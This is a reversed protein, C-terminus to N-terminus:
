LSKATTDMANWTVSSLAQITNIGDQETSNQNTLVAITYDVGEGHVHGISNINWGQNYDLWGNKLQVSVNSPIGGTVGWRQDSEVNNLLADATAVSDESLMTHYAIQNVVKLQDLADTQTLGWEDDTGAVTNTTGIQQFFSNMTTEGGVTDWLDSAADDDSSEIMPVAESMQDSTLGSINNHQNQLLLVELMSLKVISATNYTTGAPANTYETTSGTTKDHVAIDVNGDAPNAALYQRWASVLQVGLEKGDEGREARAAREQTARRNEVAHVTSYSLGFVGIAIASIIVVIKKAVGFQDIQTNRM